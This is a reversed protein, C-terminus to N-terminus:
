KISRLFRNWFTTYKAHQSRTLAVKNALNTPSGGFKVPQIEHIDKGAYKAPDSRHLASNTRNALDRATTYEEGEVVRFPGEPKPIGEPYGSWNAISFEGTRAVPRQEAPSQKASDTRPTEEV